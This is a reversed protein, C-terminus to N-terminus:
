IYSIDMPMQAMGYFPLAGTGHHAINLPGLGGIRDYFTGVNPDESDFEAADISVTYAGPQLNLAIRFELLIEEGKELSPLPFNLQPTGAAFVLNGMRDHIQVGVSPGRIACNARLLVRVSARHMMEFEWTPMGHGDVVSASRVELSRDGHRSKAAALINSAEVAARAAPNVAPHRGPVATNPKSRATHLNFYRSVCDEPAGDFLVSGQSLLLARDCLSQVAGMDHSVFILTAGRHVIERIRQFCKQSFFVDGVALAEDIILVDPQVNVAVAFALRMMMGSSYTKVPQDIFEGIDAFAIVEDMRGAMEARTLGYIAGNLFVNERGTFDMNFGSGLELLASVRGGTRVLGSTPTLTGAILQLLTSKGSGNRGIIGTAEGRRICFSVDRLAYFDRYRRAAREGLARGLSSRRPFLRSAAEIMPVTLRSSPRDWIRYAKTLGNVEILPESPM